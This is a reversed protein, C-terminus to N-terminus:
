KEILGVLFLVGLIFMVGLLSLGMKPQEENPHRKLTLIDAKQICLTGIDTVLLAWSGGSRQKMSQSFVSSDASRWVATRGSLPEWAILPLM